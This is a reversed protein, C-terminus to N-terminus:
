PCVNYCSRCFGSCTERYYPPCGIRHCKDWYEQCKDLCEECRPQAPVVSMLTTSKKASYYINESKYLSLDATFGILRPATIEKKM